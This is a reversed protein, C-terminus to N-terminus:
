KPKILSNNFYSPFSVLRLELKLDSIQVKGQSLFSLIDSDRSREVLSM